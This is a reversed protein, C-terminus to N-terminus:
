CLPWGTLGGAAAARDPYWWKISVYQEIFCSLTNWLTYTNCLQWFVKNAQYFFFLCNNAIFTHVNNSEGAKFFCLKSECSKNSIQDYIKSRSSIGTLWCRMPILATQVQCKQYHELFNEHSNMFLTYASLLNLLSIYKFGIDHTNIGLPLGLWHWTLQRM